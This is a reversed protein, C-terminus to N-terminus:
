YVLGFCVFSDLKLKLYGMFLQYARFHVLLGFWFWIFSDLCPKFYAMFTQYTTFYIVLGLWVLSFFSDFKSKSYEMFLKYATICVFSFWVSDEWESYIPISYNASCNRSLYLKKFKIASSNSRSTFILGLRRVRYCMEWLQWKPSM